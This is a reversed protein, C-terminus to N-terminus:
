LGVMAERIHEALEVNSYPKSLLKVGEPLKIKGLVTTETYGSTMLVKMRPWRRLVERVLDAGNMPGPMIVDTFVLDLHTETKLMEVAELATGATLVDYGLGSLKNSISQRVLDDDEVLLIGGSGRVLPAAATTNTQAASAQALAPLYIRIVTGHGVESYIKAHGGSQKVFGYVMSLGLGTGKGVEKTTFFPTFAREVVHPPMGAGTDTVAILVYPGPAVDLNESVYDVDLEKIMTEITITGGGAMADRSNIALNLLASELRGPDVHVSPLQAAKRVEIEINAPLTSRLLKLFSELLENVDITKPQLEQKRAFAMLQAVLGAGRDAARLIIDAQKLSFPAGKLDEKLDEANSKIATLLNNFDHAIGGTLQGVSEMKQAELLLEERQRLETVDEHVTVSYGIGGDKDHILSTAMNDLFHTSDKRKFAVEMRWPRSEARAREMREAVSPGVAADFFSLPSRGLIEEPNYRTLAAFAPNTYIIPTGPAKDDTITIGQTIAELARDRLLLRNLAAATAQEAAARQRLAGALVNTLFLFAATTIVLAVGWAISTLRWDALADAKPLAAHVAFTEREEEVKIFDASDGTPAEGLTVTGGNEIWISAAPYQLLARWMIGTRSANKQDTTAGQDAEAQQNADALTAVTFELQARIRSLVDNRESLLLTAVLAWIGVIAAIVPVFVLRDLRHQAGGSAGSATAIGVRVEGIKGAPLARATAAQESV